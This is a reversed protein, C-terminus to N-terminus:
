KKVQVKEKQKQKKDKLEKEIKQHKEKEKSHREKDEFCSLEYKVEIDEPKLKLNGNYKEWGNKNTFKDEIPDKVFKIQVSETEAYAGARFIKMSLIKNLIYESLEKTQEQTLLIGDEPVGIDTKPMYLQIGSVKSKLSKELSKVFWEECDGEFAMRDHIQSCSIFPIELLDIAFYFEYEMDGNTEEHRLSTEDKAGSRTSVSFSSVSNNTQIANTITVPSKKKIQYSKFAHTYGRTIGNKSGIARYLLEKDQAITPNQTCIDNWISHRLCHSSINIKRYKEGNEKEYTISKSIKVNNNNLISKLEPFDKKMSYGKEKSDFNVIGNGKVKVKGLISKVKM